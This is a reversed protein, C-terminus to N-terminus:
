ASMRKDREAITKETHHSGCLTRCNHPDLKPGGDRIEIIHDVFMRQESRGCGPWQCTNRDRRIVARRLAVWESSHYFNDTVKPAPLATRQELMALPSRLTTLRTAKLRAM